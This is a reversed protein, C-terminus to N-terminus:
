NGFVDVFLALLRQQGDANFRYDQKTLDNIAKPIADWTRKLNKKDGSVIEYVKSGWLEKIRPDSVRHKMVWIREGNSPKKPIIYAYYAIAKPYKKIVKELKDFVSKHDEGKVTNHKNKLEIFISNDNKKLDVGLQHGRELDEWGDVGGLLKQHFEGIRNTITKDNQRIVENSIWTKTDFNGNVIDFIMKFVDLGNRKLRKMDIQSKTEPYADCVYKVCKLFHEDTVFDVYKNEM